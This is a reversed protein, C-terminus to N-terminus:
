KLSHVEGIYSRAVWGGISHGLFAVPEQFLEFGQLKM